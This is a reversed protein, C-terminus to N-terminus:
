NGWSRGIKTLLSWYIQGHEQSFARRFDGTSAPGSCKWMYDWFVDTFSWMVDSWFFVLFTVKFSFLLSVWKKWCPTKKKNKPDWFTPTKWWFTTVTTLSSCTPGVVKMCNVPETRGVPFRHDNFVSESTKGAWHSSNKSTPNNITYTHSKFPFCCSIMFMSWFPFRCSFSLGMGNKVPQIIRPNSWYGIWFAFHAFFVDRYSRCIGGFCTGLSGLNKPESRWETILYRQFEWEGLRWWATIIVICFLPCLPVQLTAFIANLKAHQANFKFRGLMNKLPPTTADDMFCM